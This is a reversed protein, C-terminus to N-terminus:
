LLTNSIFVEDQNHWEINKSSINLLDFFEKDKKLKIFGKASLPFHWIFNNQTKQTINKSRALEKLLIQLAKEQALQGLHPHSIGAIIKTYFEEEYAVGIRIVSIHAQWAMYLAQSLLNLTTEFSWVRHENRAYQQALLTNEVVLCPYFRMFDPQLSISTEIDKLFDEEEQKPINPMLQIVLNFDKKVAKCAQIAINSDYARNCALLSTNNFTQIGLEITDIGFKKMLELKQESCCDPRTSCRAHSILSQKKMKKIFELCLMFEKEPLASFTGGYFAIEKSDYAKDPNIEQQKEEYTKAEILKRELDEIQRLLSSFSKETATQLSQNCFSCIQPCGFFPLFIPYIKHKETKKSQKIFFKSM